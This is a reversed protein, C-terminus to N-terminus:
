KNFSAIVADWAENIQQKQQIKAIAGLEHRMKRLGGILEQDSLSTRRANQSSIEKGEQTRPGTSQEWPQWEKILQRQRERAEATWRPM